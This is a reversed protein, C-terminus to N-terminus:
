DNATGRALSLTFHALSRILTCRFAHDFCTPRLLRILSRQSRILSRILSHSLRYEQNNQGVTRVACAGLMINKGLSKEEGQKKKGKQNKRRAQRASNGIWDIM